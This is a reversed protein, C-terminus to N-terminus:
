RLKHNEENNLIIHIEEDEELGRSDKSNNDIIEKTAKNDYINYEDAVASDVAENLSADKNIKENEEADCEIKNNENEDVLAANKGTPNSSCEIKDSNNLLNKDEKDGTKAHIPTVSTKRRKGKGKM